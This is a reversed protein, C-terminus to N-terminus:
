MAGILIGLSIRKEEETHLPADVLIQNTASDWLIKIQVKPAQQSM